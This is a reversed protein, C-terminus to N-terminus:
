ELILVSIFHFQPQFDLYNKYYSTDISPLFFFSFSMAKFLLVLFKFYSYWSFLHMLGLLDSRIQLIYCLTLFYTFSLIGDSIYSHSELLNIHVKEFKNTTTTISKNRKITQTSKSRIYLMYLKIFINNNTIQYAVIPKNTSSTNNPILDKYDSINLAKSNDSKVFVKVFNYKKDM